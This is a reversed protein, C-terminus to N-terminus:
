AHGGRVFVLASELLKASDASTAHIRAFKIMDCHVLFQAILSRDADSFRGTRSIESLFEVSTQERAHLGFQAGIYTRLVDSVAFSFTYPEQVAVEPRLKELAAIAVERPTPPPTAPRRKVWRVILWVLLGLILLALAAAALTMWLPYPWVDLPPAIDKIEPPPPTAPPAPAASPAPTALVALISASASPLFAFCASAAFLRSLNQPALLRNGRGRKAAKRKKRTNRTLITWRIM